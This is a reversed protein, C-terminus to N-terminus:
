MRMIFENNELYKLNHVLEYVIQFPCVGCVININFM